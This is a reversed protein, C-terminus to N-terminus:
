GQFQRIANRLTDIGDLSGKSSSSIRGQIQQILSSILDKTNELFTKDFDKEAIQDQYGARVMSGAGQASSKFIEGWIQGKTIGTQMQSHLGSIKHDAANLDDKIARSYEVHDDNNFGRGRDAADAQSTAPKAAAAKRAIGIEDSGPNMVRVSPAPAVGHLATPQNMHTYNSQLNDRATMAPTLQPGVESSVTYSHYAQGLSIGATAFSVMAETFMQEAELRIRKRVTDALTVTTEFQQVVQDVYLDINMLAADQQAEIASLYAEISYAMASFFTSPITEQEKSEEVGEVAGTAMDPNSDGGESGGGSGGNQGDQDTLKETSEEGQMEELERELEPESFVEETKAVGPTLNYITSM